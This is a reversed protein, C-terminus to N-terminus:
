RGRATIAEAVTQADLAVGGVLGSRRRTLWPLGVFYLGPYRTAGRTQVPYGDGDLIPLKVLSFDFSYGMTWIITTIGAARLDLNTIEEAAYGHTLAPVEEPPAEIGDRAIVDDIRKLMDAEIKDSKALNEKLDAAFGIRHGAGDQIHGLLRVGDACFQHLNLNQGGNRGSVHPNANFRAKSSPLTDPTQDMFGIIELWEFIDRGRYRRPVRGCGGTSLYVTRGHQYLEQAIQCGTQGSGAILVAGPPLADPNRYQGSHMQMISSDLGTSFPPLKHRQYLGTAIVV